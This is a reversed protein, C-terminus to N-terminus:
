RKSVIRRPIGKYVDYRICKGDIVHNLDRIWSNKLFILCFSSVETEGMIVGRVGHDMNEKEAVTMKIETSSNVTHGPPLRDVYERLTYHLAKNEVTM